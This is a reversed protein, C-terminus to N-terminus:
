NYNDRKKFYVSLKGVKLVMLDDIESCTEIKVCILLHATRKSERVIHLVDLFESGESEKLAFRKGTTKETCIRVM